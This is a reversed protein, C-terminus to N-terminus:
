GLLGGHIKHLIHANLLLELLQVITFPHQCLIVHYCFQFKGFENLLSDDDAGGTQAVVGKGLNGLLHELTLSRFDLFGIGAHAALIEPALVTLHVEGLALIGHAVEHLIDLIDLAEFIDHNTQVRQNLVRDLGAIGIFEIDGRDVGDDRTVEDVAPTCTCTHLGSGIEAFAQEPLTVVGM